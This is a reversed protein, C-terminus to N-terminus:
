EYRQMVYIDCMYVGDNIMVSSIRVSTASLESDTPPSFARIPSWNGWGISRLSFRILLIRLYRDSFNSANPMLLRLAWFRM